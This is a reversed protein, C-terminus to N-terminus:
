TAYRRMCARCAAQSAPLSDCSVGRRRACACARACVCACVRARACVCACVRARACVCACVRARACVRVCGRPSCGTVLGGSVHHHWGNPLYLCDSANLQAYSQLQAARAFRPFRELDPAAGNVEATNDSVIGTDFRGYEGRSPVYSAQIDRRRGYYLDEKAQPPWLMVHKSGRM